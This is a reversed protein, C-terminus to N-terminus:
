CLIKNIELGRKRLYMVDYFLFMRVEIHEANPFTRQSCEHCFFVRRLGGQDPGPNDTSSEAGGGGGEAGPDM